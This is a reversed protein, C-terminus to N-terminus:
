FILKQILDADAGVLYSHWRLKLQHAASGVCLLGIGWDIRLRNTHRQLKWFTISVVWCKKLFTFTATTLLSVHMHFMLRLNNKMASYVEIEMTKVTIM